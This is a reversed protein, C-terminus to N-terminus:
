GAGPEGPALRELMVVPIERETREQYKAYPPNSKVLWPWLDSRESATAERARIAWEERGVRVRGHPDRQLNLWWAPHRDQGGNSAVVVVAGGRPFCSLPTTRLQRSRRGTTTLLCMDLGALRAGLRGGTAEYVRRHVRGVWDWSGM